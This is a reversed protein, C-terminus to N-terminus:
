PNVKDWTQEVDEWDEGDYTFRNEISGGGNPSDPNDVDNEFEVTYLTGEDTEDYPVEIEFEHTDAGVVDYVYSIGSYVETVTVTAGVPIKGIIESELTGASEFSLGIVNSYVLEGDLTAEVDFLFTAPRGLMYRDLTKRIRLAGYLGVQEPKLTITPNYDWSGTDEGNEDAEKTPVSVLAPAFRYTHQATKVTTALSESGTEDTVSAVYAATDVVGDNRTIVLYLGTAPIDGAVKVPLTADPAVGDRLVVAFAEQALANWADTDKDIALSLNELEAFAPLAAYDYSDEGTAIAAAVLYVDAVVDDAALLDTYESDAGAPQVTLTCVADLDLAGRASRLGAPTAIVLVFVLILAALSKLNRKM